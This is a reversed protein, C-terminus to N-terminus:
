AHLLFSIHEKKSGERERMEVISDFLVWETSVQDWLTETITLEVAQQFLYVHPFMVKVRGLIQVSVDHFLILFKPTSISVQFAHWKDPLGLTEKLGM